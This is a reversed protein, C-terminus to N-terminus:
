SLAATAMAMENATAAYGAIAIAHHLDTNAFSGATGNNNLAGIMYPITTNPTGSQPQNYYETGDWYLKVTTGDYTLAIVGTLGSADVGSNITAMDQAGVGAAVLGNGDFGIFSDTSAGARSGLVIRPSGNDAINKARAILTMASAPTMSTLLNSATGDFRGVGGAQRTPRANSVASHRPVARFQVDHVTIDAPTGALAGRIIPGSSVGASINTARIRYTTPTSSLTVTTTGMDGGTGSLFCLRIDGSGSLLYTTEAMRGIPFPATGVSRYVYDSAGGFHITTATRSASGSSNNFAWSLINKTDLANPVFEIIQELTAGDWRGSDLVNGISEGVDDAPVPIGLSPLRLQFTRDTKSFDYWFGDTGKNILHNIISPSFVRFGRHFKSNLAVM